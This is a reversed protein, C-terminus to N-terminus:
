DMQESSIPLRKYVGNYFIAIWAVVGIVGIPDPLRLPEATPPALLTKYALWAVPPVVAM